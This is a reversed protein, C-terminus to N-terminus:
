EFKIVVDIRRLLQKIDEERSMYMIDPHAPSTLIIREGVFQRIMGKDEVQFAYRDLLGLLYTFSYAEPRVDDIIIDKHGDYGYWWRGTANSKFYASPLAGIAGSTKGTGSDGYFWLVEPKSSRPKDYYKVLKEATRLTNCNIQIEDDELLRVMSCDRELFRKIDLIDSRSGQVKPVGYRIFNGEKQCYAIAQRQTGMRSEIHFGTLHEKIKDFVVRNELEVYGQLHKTQEKEGIEKGYIYYNCKFTEPLAEVKLIDDSTWNNCTFVFNRLQNSKKVM